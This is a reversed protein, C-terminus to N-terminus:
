YPIDKIIIFMTTTITIWYFQHQHILNQFFISNIWTKMVFLQSHKTTQCFKRKFKHNSNFNTKENDDNHYLNSISRKQRYCEPLSITNPKFQTFSIIIIFLIFLHPSDLFLVFFIIWLICIVASFVCQAHNM